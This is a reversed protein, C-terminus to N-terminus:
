KEKTILQKIEEVSPSGGILVPKGDVLLIPSQLFGMSIIKQVDTVYEIEAGLNLESAAQKTEEYLM